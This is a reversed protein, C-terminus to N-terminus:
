AEGTSSAFKTPSAERSSTSSLAFLSFQKKQRLETRRFARGLQGSVPEYAIIIGASLDM